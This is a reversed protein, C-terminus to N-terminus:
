AGGQPLISSTTKMKKSRTEKADALNGLPGDNNTTNISQKATPTANSKRKKSELVSSKDQSSGSAANKLTHVMRMIGKHIGEVEKV